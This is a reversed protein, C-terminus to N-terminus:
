AAGKARAAMSEACRWAVDADRHVGHPCPRRRGDVQIAARYGRSTATVQVKIEENTM